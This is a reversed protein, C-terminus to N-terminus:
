GDKRGDNSIDGKKLQLYGERVGCSSITLDDIVYHDMIAKLIVMAPVETHIREPSVRIITNVMDPDQDLMALVIDEIEFSNAEENDDKGYAEQAINGIARISGGVGCLQRQGWQPLKCDKLKDAMYQKMQRYEPISPILASVFGRYLTLSGEPISISEVYKGDEVLIIETSGGGIDVIYGNDYNKKETRVGLYDCYGEQEGSLLDIAIGTEKEVQGLIKKSNSANRIAATAFYYCEDVGLDEVSQQFKTLKKILKNVGKDTMKGEEIYSSLGAFTKKGAVVQFSGEREQYFNLRMSNSGIDVIGYM